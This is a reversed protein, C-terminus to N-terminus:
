STVCVCLLVLHAARACPQHLAECHTQCDPTNVCTRITTIILHFHQTHPAPFLGMCSCHMRMQDLNVHTWDQGLIGWPNKKPYIELFVPISAWRSLVADCQINVCLESTQNAKDYMKYNPWLSIWNNHISIIFASILSLQACQETCRYLNLVEEVTCIGVRLRCRM